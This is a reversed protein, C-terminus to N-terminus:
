HTAILVTLANSSVGGTVIRLDHVGADTREPVRLNVQYLGAYGPVLGAFLPQISHRGLTAEVQLRVPCLTRMPAPQGAAVSAMVQGLGTLYVVLYEGPRAPTEPSVATGDLHQAAFVGPAASSIVVAKGDVGNPTSISLTGPGASDFPLQANVQGPTVALLPIPARDLMVRVGGLETPLPFKGANYSGDALNRGFISILGGPALRTTYSAANVVGQESITPPPELTVRDIEEGDMGIARITMRYGEVSARLFHHASASFAHFPRQTVPYIPAGGGGTTIYVTGAGSPVPSGGRLPQTRQYNHEHGNLVLQVGHRELIPVLHERALASLPDNEHKGGAFPPHHFYVVKWFQTSRRLDDELWDLMARSGRAAEELPLNSDLATFHVNGRSFSYYRGYHAEPLSTGPLTHVLLYPLARDTYYEHNGPCPFFAVRKMLNRYVAFHRADFEEFAGNPYAIDGTHLVLAARERTMRAAIQAQEPTGVGSDGFVLFDFRGADATQFSLEEGPTVNEGGALVRYRYETGPALGTLIAQHRYYTSKMRTLGPNRVETRAEMRLSFSHDASYEVVGPVNEQTAWLITARNERVNQLYPQRLLTAAPAASAILLAALLRYSSRM